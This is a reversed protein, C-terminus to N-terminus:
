SRIKMVMKKMEAQFQNCVNHIKKSLLGNTTNFHETLSEIADSKKIITLNSM